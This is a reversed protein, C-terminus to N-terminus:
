KNGDADPESDSDFGDIGWDSFKALNRPHFREKMLEEKFRLCKKRMKKYDYVVPKYKLTHDYWEVMESYNNKVAHRYGYNGCVETDIQPFTLLLWKCVELQNNLVSHLFVDNSDHSLDNRICNKDHSSYNECKYLYRIMTINGRICFQKFLWARMKMRHMPHPLGCLEDMLETNNGSLANELIQSNIHIGCGNSITTTM